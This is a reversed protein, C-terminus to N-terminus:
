ISDHTRRRRVIGAAVVFLLSASLLVLMLWEAPSMFLDGLAPYYEYVGFGFTRVVIVLAMGGFLVLLAAVDERVLPVDRYFTRRVTVGYARSEMAEAVQVARDLSNSLLPFVLAGRNRVRQVLSGSGFSLGRSQQVESITRADAVLVPIFRTSLSTVLVSRYPLRLKIAARMLDDPHVCLNLLTFASIIAALRLAMAGGFALAEATMMPVGLLPVRFGAQLLVNSGQQNVLVNIVVIAVCMWLVFKMLGRWQRGVGAAYAVPVTSLFVVLLWVPHSVAMAAVLIVAVWAPMVFPNLHHIGSGNRRYSFQLNM